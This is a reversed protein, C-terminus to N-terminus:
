SEFPNRYVDGLPLRCGIWEISATGDGRTVDLVWHESQRRWLEVRREEYAVLVIEQLSPIQKCHALKEGRDYDESSPSMVEVIVGPNIITNGRADDPDAQQQGCVVSVDPYTALGTAKVRIRVDSTFVRCTRDRLHNGLLVILNAAVAGHEPTGGAMAWVHGELFEHKTSSVEELALYDEFTFRQRVASVMAASYCARNVGERRGAGLERLRDLYGLLADLRRCLADADVV